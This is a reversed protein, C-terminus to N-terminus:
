QIDRVPPKILIIFRVVVVIVLMKIAIAPSTNEIITEQRTHAATGDDAPGGDM